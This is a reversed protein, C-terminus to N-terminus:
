FGPVCALLLSWALKFFPNDTLFGELAKVLDDWM